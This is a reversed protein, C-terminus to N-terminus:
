YQHGTSFMIIMMRGPDYPRRMVIFADHDQVWGNVEHFHPRPQDNAPKSGYGFIFTRSRVAWSGVSINQNRKKGGREVKTVVAFPPPPPAPSAESLPGPQAAGGALRSHDHFHRL